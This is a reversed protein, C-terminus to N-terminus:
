TAMTCSLTATQSTGIRDTNFLSARRKIGYVEHGNKLLLKALYAGDKGFIGSILAKKM